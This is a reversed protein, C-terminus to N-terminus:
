SEWLARRGAATIRVRIIEIARDQIRVTEGAMTALGAVVLDSLLEGSFGHDAWQTETIGRPEADSLSQLVSRQGATLRSETM